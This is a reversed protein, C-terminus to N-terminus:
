LAAQFSRNPSSSGYRGDVTFAGTATALPPNLGPTLVCSSLSLSSAIPLVAHSLSCLYGKQPTVTKAILILRRLNTKVSYLFELHVTRDYKLVGDATVWAAPPLSVSAFSGLDLNIEDSFWVGGLNCITRGFSIM